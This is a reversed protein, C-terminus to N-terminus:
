KKEDPLLRSAKSDEGSCYASRIPIYRAGPSAPLMAELEAYNEVRPCDTMDRQLRWRDILVPSLGAARAGAVDIWYIDGIYLSEEARAGVRELAIRFLRPDPKTVGEIHSDVITEFFGALGAEALDAAIRGEANSIVALRFGRAKLRGLLDAAGPAPRHWLGKSVNRDWLASVVQPRVAEPTGVGAYIRDYYGRWADLPVRGERVWGLYWARATWEARSFADDDPMADASPAGGDAVARWVDRLHGYELDLITGGADFFLHKV